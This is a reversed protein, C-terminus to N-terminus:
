TGCFTKYNPDVMLPPKAYVEKGQQETFPNTIIALLQEFQSYDSESEAANLAAEVLHNRPIYIPNEARIRDAVGNETEIRSHFRTIWDDTASPTLYLDRLPTADGEALDALARFALTFDVMNDTM